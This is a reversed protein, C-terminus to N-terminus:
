YECRQLTHSVVFICLIMVVYKDDTTEEATLDDPQQQHNPIEM